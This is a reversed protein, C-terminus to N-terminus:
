KKLNLFANSTDILASAKNVIDDVNINNIDNKDVLVTSKNIKILRVLPDIYYFLSVVPTQVANAAHLLGGDACILMKSCKIVEATENFTLEGVLNIVNKPHSNSIKCAINDANQLGVLVINKVINQRLIEDVVEDWANFTREINAGGLAIIIFDQPLNYEKVTIKDQQSIPLLPKAIKYIDAENYPKSLLQNIRFFSFYLRNFDDVNYYGYLTVHPLTLFYKALIKLSRQRYSDIIILDYKKSACQEPSTFINKFIADDQYISSVNEKTLLDVERDKLLVRSSLDMLSDGLYADVWQIWLIKKHQQTIQTLKQSKRLKIEAYLYRGFFRKFRKFLSVRRFFDDVSAPIKEKFPTTYTRYFGLM